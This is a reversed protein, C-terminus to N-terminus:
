CLSIAVSFANAFAGKALVKPTATFREKVGPQFEGVGEANLCVVVPGEV